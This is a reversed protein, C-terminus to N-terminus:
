SAAKQWQRSIIARRLEDLASRLLVLLCPALLPALIVWCPTFPLTHLLTDPATTAAVLILAAGALLFLAIWCCRLWRVRGLTPAYVPQFHIIEVLLYFIATGMLGAGGLLLDIRMAWDFIHAVGAGVTAM